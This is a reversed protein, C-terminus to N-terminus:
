INKLAQPSPTYFYGGGKLHVHGHFDSAINPPTSPWKHDPRLMPIDGFLPQGIIPDIGVVDEGPKINPFQRNNAWSVQMFHFQNEISSQYSMFLLGVGDNPMDIFEATEPDQLRTGYTIGRRAMQVDKDFKPSGPGSGRPNTKRIHSQFPCRAGTLDTAFDFDNLVPSELPLPPDLVVPIGNEFRGVVMAGALEKNSPPPNLILQLANEAAKFSAVDQELKRFVFYSALGEGPALPDDFLFQSLHTSPDYTKPHLGDAKNETDLMLPQSRGDVYGFHEIGEGNKNTYGRGEQIHLIKLGRAEGKLTELKKFIMASLADIDHYAVLLLVDATESLSAQWSHTSQLDLVESDETMGMEFFPDVAVAAKKFDVDKGLKVLGGHSIFLLHVPGGPIGESKLRETELFQTASSSVEYQRLFERALQVDTINLFILAVHRRGHGKLINAQVSSLFKLTESNNLSTDNLTNELDFPM